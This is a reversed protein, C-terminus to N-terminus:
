LYIYKKLMQKTEQNIIKLFEKKKYYLCFKMMKSWLFYGNELSKLEVLIPNRIGKINYHITNAPDTIISKYQILVRYLYERYRQRLVEEIVKEDIDLKELFKYAIKLERWQVDPLYWIRQDKKKQYYRSKEKSFDIRRRKTDCIDGHIWAGSYKLSVIASILTLGYDGFCEKEFYIHRNTISHWINKRFIYGTPHVIRCAFELLSEQGSKYIQYDVSSNIISSCQAFAVDKDELQQLINILKKIKHPNVNDRENIYFLYKGDGHDLSNCINLPGGVNIDNEYVKLRLDNIRRIKEVTGDKSCDDCVIINFKASDVSLIEQILEKLIEYRKYSSICFSVVIESM